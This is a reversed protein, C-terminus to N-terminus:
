KREDKPNQSFREHVCLPLLYSDKDSLCAPKASLRLPIKEVEVNIVKAKHLMIYCIATFGDQLKLKGGWFLSPGAGKRGNCNCAPLFVCWKSVELSCQQSCHFFLNSSFAQLVPILSAAWALANPWVSPDLFMNGIEREYCPVSLISAPLIGAPWRSVSVVSFAGYTIKVIGRVSNEAVPLLFLICMSGCWVPSHNVNNILIRLVKRSPSWISKNSWLITFPFLFVLFFFLETCCCLHLHRMKKGWRKSWCSM